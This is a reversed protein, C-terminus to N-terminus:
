ENHYVIAKGHHLTELFDNLLSLCHSIDDRQKASLSDAFHLAVFANALEIKNTTYQEESYYFKNNNMATQQRENVKIQEM